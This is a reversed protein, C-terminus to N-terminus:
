RNRRYFFVLTGLILMLMPAAILSTIYISVAATGTMNLKSEDTPKPRISILDEDEVLWSMINQALDNNIGQPRLHNTAFDTDGVVVLRFEPTKKKEVTDEAKKPEEKKAIAGKVAMGLTLAEPKNHKPDKALQSKDGKDQMLMIQTTPRTTLLSEVQYGQPLTSAKALPTALQMLAFARNEGEAVKKTVPHTPSFQLVAAHVNSLGLPPSLDVVVTAHKWEVGFDKLFGEFSAPSNPDLTLLMRGGSKLYSELLTLESPLFASKPGAVVLVDADKPIEKKELLLLDEVVYSAGSLIDRLDSLTSKLPEERHGTVFYAKHRGKRTVQLIANTIKEEIKPDEAGGALSDILVTSDGSEVVLTGWRTIKYRTVINPDKDADLAATKVRPSLSTYRELVRDFSTTDQAVVRITVDQQLNKLIQESQESLTHLRNKTLDKKWDYRNAILNIFVVVGVFFASLVLSILAFQVRPQKWSPRFAMFWTAVAALFIGGGTALLWKWLNEGQGSTNLFFATLLLFISILFLLLSLLKKNM